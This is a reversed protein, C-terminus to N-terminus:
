EGMAHTPFLHPLEPVGVAVLSVHRKEIETFVRDDAWSREIHFLYGDKVETLNEVRAAAVESRRRGGSSFAFNLLAPRLYRDNKRHHLYFTPFLAPGPYGGKEKGTALRGHGRDPAGKFAAPAGSRVPV